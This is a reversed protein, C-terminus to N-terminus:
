KGATSFQSLNTDYMQVGASVHLWTCYMYLEKCFSEDGKNYKRNQQM